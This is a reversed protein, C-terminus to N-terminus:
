RVVARLVALPDVGIARCIDVFEIVDLRREGREVKSIFTQTAGLAEALGTQTLGAGLRADRLADVLARYERRHTFDPM